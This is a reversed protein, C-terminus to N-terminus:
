FKGACVEGLVTLGSNMLCANPNEMPSHEVGSSYIVNSRSRWRKNEKRSNLLAEIQQKSSSQQTTSSTSSSARSFSYDGRVLKKSFSNGLHLLRRPSRAHTTTIRLEQRKGRLPRCPHFVLICAFCRDMESWFGLSRFGELSNPTAKAPATSEIRVELCLVADGNLIDGLRKRARLVATEGWWHNM